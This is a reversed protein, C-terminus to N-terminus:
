CALKKDGENDIMFILIHTDCCVPHPVDERKKNQPDNKM